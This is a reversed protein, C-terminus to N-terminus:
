TPLRRRDATSYVVNVKIARCSGTCLAHIFWCAIQVGNCPKKRRSAAPIAVMQQLRHLIACVWMQKQVSEKARAKYVKANLKVTCKLTKFTEEVGWRQRYYEKAQSAPIRNSHFLRFTSGSMEYNTMAGVVGLPTQYGRAGISTFTKLGVNKKMRFVFQVGQEQLILALAESYYGRDMVLVDGAKVYDLMRVLASREDCKDSFDLAVITKSKVDFAASLLGCPVSKYRGMGNFGTQSKGMPIKSGDVALVRRRSCACKSIMRDYIHKFANVPCRGLAKQFATGSFDCTEISGLISRVSINSQLSKLMCTVLSESNVKRRRKVWLSDASTAVNKFVEIAEQCDVHEFNVMLM